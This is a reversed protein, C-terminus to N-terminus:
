LVQGFCIVDLGNMGHVDLPCRTVGIFTQTTKYREAMVFGSRQVRTRSTNEIRLTKGKQRKVIISVLGFITGYVRVNEPWFISM